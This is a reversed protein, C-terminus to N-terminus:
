DVQDPTKNQPLRVIKEASSEQNLWNVVVSSVEKQVPQHEIMLHGKNKMVVLNVKQSHIGSVFKPLADTRFVADKEGAIMLIPLDAPIQSVLKIPKRLTINSKILEEPTFKRNIKPDKLCSETLSKDCSLYTNLYPEINMPSKPHALGNVVDPVWRARPHNYRKICPSGLIAGDILDPNMESIWLGENAGLSEGLIFIKTGPNEAKLERLVNVLDTEGDTFHIHGDNIFKAPEDKWRGFGRIDAAYFEYGQSALYRAFDDFAEAYFTLGHIGVVIAKRKVSNDQWQYVPIKLKEGVNSDDIRIAEAKMAQPLFQAVGLWSLLFFIKLNRTM